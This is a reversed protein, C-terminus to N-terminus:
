KINVKRTVTGKDTTVTVLYIGSQAPAKLTLQSASNFEEVAVVQGALNTIKVDGKASETLQVRIEKNLAFISVAVSNAEPMGLANFVLSFRDAIDGPKATFSYSSNQRLNISSGTIKDKLTIGTGPLFDDLDAASITYQTEAGVELLIPLESNNDIGPIHSISTKEDGVMTYLQPADVIGYLKYADYKQDFGNTSEPNIVFMMVDSYNNGSVTLRLEQRVIKSNKNTGTIKVGNTFTLNNTEDFTRVFFGEYPKIYGDATGSGDELSAIQYQDGYWLYVNGNLGTYSTGTASLDIYSPFPNGILNWGYGYGSAGDTYSLNDFTAAGGKIPGKFHLTVPAEPSRAISYGKMHVMNDEDTLRSWAGTSEVYEDVFYGNFTPSATITNTTPLAFLYYDEDEIWHEITADGTAEGNVILKNSEMFLDSEITLDYCRAGSNLTVPFEESIVVDDNGTPIEGYNWTYESDWNDAQVSVFQRRTSIKFDDIALGDDSGSVNYDNFRIWFAAENEIEIELVSSIETQNASLNGDLPKDKNDINTNPSLFDLANVDIWTGSSLSTADLSYQFDLKDATGNSASGRRWQEGIYSIKLNTIVSGTNNIFLAGITPTFNNTIIAGFAREDSGASGYSYTDGGVSSGNNASYTGNANTGTELFYWGIPVIDSTGSPALTNFDQSYLAGDLSIEWPIPPISVNGSLNVTQTTGGGSINVSGNFDGVSLGEKLRIYINTSNLVGDTYPVTITSSSFDTNNSSVEFNSSSAITIDGAVPELGSGSLTFSQSSSPGEGLFYTFDNLSAPNVELGSTIGSVGSITIDVIGPGIGNNTGGVTFKIRVQTGNYESIDIPGQEVLTSNSPTKTGLTIWNFGNDISILITIKNETSSTGGYTRAKFNLTESNYQTFDMAPTTTSSTAKLLQLYTTGAVEVDTWTSFGNIGTRVPIINVAQGWGLTAIGLFLAFLLSFKKM